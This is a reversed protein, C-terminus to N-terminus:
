RAVSSPTFELGFADAVPQNTVKVPTVSVRYEHTETEKPVGVTM